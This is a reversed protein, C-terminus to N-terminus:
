LNPPTGLLTLGYNPKTRKENPKPMDRYGWIRKVRAPQQVAACKITRNPAPAKPPEGASGRRQPKSRSHQKVGYGRRCDGAQGHAGNQALLLFQLGNEIIFVLHSTPVTFGIGGAERDFDCPQGWGFGCRAGPLLSQPGMCIEWITPAM